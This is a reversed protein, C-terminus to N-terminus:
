LDLAWELGWYGPELARRPLDSAYLARQYDLRIRNGPLSLELGIASGALRQSPSGQDFRAWGLDVGLFPRLQVTPSSALTIPYSLTNRWVAGSAGTVTLQRVGRVASDDNLALQEVAPLFDPSYQLNLESQWRWPPAPPAQALYLLSARYKRFDPQPARRARITHDAGLADIGQSIGLSASWLGHELWLLNLGADLTTLTTSQVKLQQGKLQNELQKRDLRVGASLMGHQNRWLLREAALGQFRSGGEAQLGNPLPASYSLQSANLTFSWPGYPINYYLSLGRSQGPAGLVTALQSLRLDDNLGLPSDIGLGLNLRNRGTLESGRNDFRGELHWRSRVQRPTLAVQTAGPAQGPLLEATVEYARLRNLQDLGQELDPLHLPQGLLAPFAGQLSLPLPETLEIAEVHGEVILIDLPEGPRPASRLYPRALPYGAQVYRQTIARLLQNIAPVNLCPQLLPRLTRELESASLKRNGALRLGSIPFCPGDTQDPSSDAPSQNAQGQRQWRHLRQQREFQETAQRQERLQQSAPDSAYATSAGALHLLLCALPLKLARSLTKPM